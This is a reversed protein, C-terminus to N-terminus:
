ELRLEWWSIEELAIPYDYITTGGLMPGKKGLKDEWILKQTGDRWLPGPLYIDRSRSSNNVIPAVLYRDGVLFEDDVAFARSDDMSVWWIPRIPGMGNKRNIYDNSSKILEDYVENAHLEVYKKAIAITETDYQWPVYSFQM